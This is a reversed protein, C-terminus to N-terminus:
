LLSQKLSLCYSLQWIALDYVDVGDPDNKMRTMQLLALGTHAGRGSESQIRIAIIRTTDVNSTERNAIITVVIIITIAPIAILDVVMRTGPAAVRAVMIVPLAGVM